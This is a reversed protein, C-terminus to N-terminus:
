FGKVYAVVDWKNDTSNYICGIYDTKGSVTLTLSTVDSGFRFGGTSSNLALTRSGGSALHRIIIKQGNLPNTPVAITRDGTATLIFVDGTNADLAPTATDVLTVVRAATNPSFAGTVSLTGTVSTNGTVTLTGSVSTNGSIAVNAISPGSLKTLSM